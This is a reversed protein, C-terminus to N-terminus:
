VDHSARQAFLHRYYKLLEWISCKSHWLFGESFLFLETKLAACLLYPMSCRVPDAPSPSFTSNSSAWPANDAWLALPIRYFLTFIWTVFVRRPQMYMPPLPFQWWVLQISANGSMELAQTWQRLLATKNSNTWTTGKTSNQKWLTTKISGYSLATREGTLGQPAVSAISTNCREKAWCFASVTRSYSCGAWCVSPISGNQWTHSASARQARAQQLLVAVSHNVVLEAATKDKDPGKQM